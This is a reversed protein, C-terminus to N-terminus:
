MDLSGRDVRSTIITESFLKTRLKKLKFREAPDIQKIDGNWLKKGNVELFRM